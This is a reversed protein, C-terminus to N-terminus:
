LQATDLSKSYYKIFVAMLHSFLASKLFSLEGTLVPINKDPMSSYRNMKKENNAVAPIPKAGCSDERKM